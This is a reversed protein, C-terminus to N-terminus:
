KLTAIARGRKGDDDRRSGAVAVGFAEFYPRVHDFESGKKADLLATLREVDLFFEPRVGGGLRGAADTFAATSGLTAGPALTEDLARRGLAVVFKDRAAAVLVDHRDADGRLLFGEDVGAADLDEIDHGALLRRLAQVTDRTAAPDKSTIVLAGRADDSTTGALFVGADGMWALVDRRIDLGTAQQAQGLLAELGIGGLGGGSAIGDLFSTLTQGLDGVGAGLWADAPLAALADAGSRAPETNAPGGFAASDVRVLDSEMDLAAGVTRPLSKAIPDLLPAAQAATDGAAGAAQRLAGAVDLYAFGSREQSVTSRATKLADAEALSSGKSADVASKFGPETGIVVADGVIGAATGDDGDVLYDVDRYTREDGGELLKDIAEQAKDNDTSPAVVVTDAERRAFALVGVGVRDGLWPEIDQEFRIGERRGGRDILQVLKAGPESTRLIKSLAARADGAEQDDPNVVAELYVPASAPVLGAPDTEGAGSSGCGAIAAAAALPAVALALLRRPVRPLATTPM